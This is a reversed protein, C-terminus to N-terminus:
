DAGFHPNVHNTLVDIRCDQFVRSLGVHHLHGVIRSFDVEKLVVDASFSGAFCFLCIHASTNWLWIWLPWCDCCGMQIEILWDVFNRYRQAITCRPRPRKVIYIYLHWCVSSISKESILDCSAWSARFPVEM